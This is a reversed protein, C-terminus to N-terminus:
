ALAKFPVHLAYAQLEQFQVVYLGIGNEITCKMSRILLIVYSWANKGHYDSGFITLSLQYFVEHLIHNNYVDVHPLNEKYYNLYNTRRLANNRVDLM